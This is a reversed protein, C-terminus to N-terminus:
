FLANYAYRMLMGKMTLLEERGWFRGDPVQNHQLYQEYEEKVVIYEQSHGRRM